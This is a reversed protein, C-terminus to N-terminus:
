PRAALTVMSSVTLSGNLPTLPTHWIPQGAVRWTFRFACEDTLFKVHLSPVTQVGDKETLLYEAPDVFLIDGLTGPASCYEVPIVPRGLMTAFPKDADESPCYLPLVSGATGVSITTGILKPEVESNVLWIAKSRSPGWMRAYMNQINASVITATAQGSEKAVTILGPSNMCGLLQGAGTGFTAALEAKFAFEATFAETLYAELGSADQVLEDTCYVVGLIKGLTLNMARFKPRSATATDAENAWYTQVGGFRSGTARSSEDFANVNLSNAAPNSIPIKLVRSLFEGTAYVRM